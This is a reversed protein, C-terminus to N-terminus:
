LKVKVSNGIEAISRPYLEETNKNISYWKRQFKDKEILAVSGQKELRKIVDRVTIRNINLDSSIKNIWAKKNKTLYNLINKENVEPVTRLRLININSLSYVKEMGQKTLFYKKYRSNYNIFGKKM